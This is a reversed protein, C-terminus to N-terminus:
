KMVKKPWILSVTSHQVLVPLFPLLQAGGDLAAVRQELIDTTPNM